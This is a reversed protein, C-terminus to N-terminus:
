GADLGARARFAHESIITVAEGAERLKRVKKLKSSPKDTEPDGGVVVLSTEKTVSSSARGGLRSVVQQADRRTLTELAGTFCVTEGAFPADADVGEGQGDAKADVIRL